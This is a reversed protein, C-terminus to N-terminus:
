FKFVFQNLILINRTIDTILILRNLVSKINLYKLIIGKIIKIKKLEIAKPATEDNTSLNLQGSHNLHQDFWGVPTCNLGSPVLIYIVPIIM